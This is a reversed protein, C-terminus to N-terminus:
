ATRGHWCSRSSRHLEPPALDDIDLNAMAPASGIGDGDAPTLVVRGGAVALVAFPGPIPPM